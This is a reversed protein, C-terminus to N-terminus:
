TTGRSVEEYPESANIQQNITELKDFLSDLYSQWSVQQGDVNYNPKPSATIEAIRALINERIAQLSSGSGGPLSSTGVAVPQHNAPVGIVQVGSTSSEPYISIDDYDTESPTLDFLYYGDETETPNVDTLAVAAAYNGSIKATINAADGTVPAGTARDFAFVRWKQGAQNKKM